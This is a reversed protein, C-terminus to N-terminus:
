WVAALGVQPALDWIRQDRTVLPVALELATAVILRDWPDTLPSGFIAPDGFREAISTTANPTM